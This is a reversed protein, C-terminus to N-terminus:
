RYKNELDDIKQVYERTVRYGTNPTCGTVGTKYCGLQDYECQWRRIGPCHLSKGNAGPGGNFAASALTEDGKYKELLSAYYKTGVDLNYSPVKLRRALEEDSVDRLSPDLTRLTDPRIQMLGYSSKGDKDMHEADPNGSSEAAIIAKLRAPDIGYDNAFREIRANLEPSFEVKNWNKPEQHIGETGNYYDMGSADCIYYGDKYCDDDISGTLKKNTPTGSGSGRPLEPLKTTCTEKGGSLCSPPQNWYKLAGQFNIKFGIV